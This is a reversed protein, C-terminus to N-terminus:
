TLDESLISGDNYFLTKKGHLKGNLFRNGAWHDEKRKPSVESVQLLSMRDDKAYVENGNKTQGRAFTLDDYPYKRETFRENDFSM